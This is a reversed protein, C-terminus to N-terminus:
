RAPTKKEKSKALLPASTAAGVGRAEACPARASQSARPAGAPAAAAPPRPRAGQVFDGPAMTGRRLNEVRAKMEVMKGPTQGVANSPALTARRSSRSARGGAANEKGLAEAGGGAAAHLSVTDEEMAAAGCGRALTTQRKAKGEATKFPKRDTDAAAFM